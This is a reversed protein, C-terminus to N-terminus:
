CPRCDAGTRPIPCFIASQQRRLTKLIPADIKLLECLKTRLVIAEKDCFLWRTVHPCCRSSTPHAGASGEHQGYGDRTSRRCVLLSETGEPEYDAWRM